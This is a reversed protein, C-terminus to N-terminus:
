PSMEVYAGDKDNVVTVVSTFHSSEVAHHDTYWLNLEAQEAYSALFECLDKVGETSLHQTPEDLVRIPIQVGAYNLLVDAFALAVILRLRQGEGGSWSEWRVAGTSTPSQIDVGLSRQTTGSKTERETSYTVQWDGLGVEALMSRTTFQLENLVEDIISLRIDGFGKAWFSARGTAAEIKKKDAKAESVEQKAEKLHVRADVVTKKHPNEQEEWDMLQQETYDIKSQLREYAQNAIQKAAISKDFEDQLKDRHKRQRDLTQRIETCAVVADAMDSNDTDRESNLKALLAEIEQKHEKLNTLLIV